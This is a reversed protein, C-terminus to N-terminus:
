VNTTYNGNDDIDGLRGLLDNKPIRVDELIIFGNDIYNLGNKHGCDGIKIGPLVNHNKDRLRLM